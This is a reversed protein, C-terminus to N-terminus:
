GIYKCSCSIRQPMFPGVAEFKRAEPVAEILLKPHVTRLFDALKQSDDTKFGLAEGFSFARLRPKRDFGWPNLSSGSQAIARHFLGAFYFADDYIYRL